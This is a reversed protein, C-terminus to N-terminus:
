LRQWLFLGGLFVPQHLFYIVLSRRGLATLWRVVFPAPKKEGGRGRGALRSSAYVGILLPGLWPIVPTYDVSAFGPYQVGLWLLLPSPITHARVLPAAAVLLLGLGLAAVPRSLLPAALLSGVAMLHLIGFVVYENGVLLRTAASVVLGLAFLRGARRCLAAFPLGREARRVALAMGSVLLFLGATLRALWLVWPANGDVVGIFYSLDFVFNSVLMMVVAWGRLLDIIVIRRRPGGAPLPGRLMASM